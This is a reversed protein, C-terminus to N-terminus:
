TTEVPVRASCDNKVHLHVYSSSFFFINNEKACVKIQVWLMYTVTTMSGLNLEATPLGIRRTNKSKWATRRDIAPLMEASGALMELLRCWWEVLSKNIYDRQFLEQIWIAVITFVRICIVWLFMWLMSPSSIEMLQVSQLVYIHHM